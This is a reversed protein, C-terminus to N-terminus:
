AHQGAMSRPIVGTQFILLFGNKDTAASAVGVQRDHVLYYKLIVRNLETDLKVKGQHILVPDSQSARPLRRPLLTRDPSQGAPLVRNRISTLQYYCRSIHDTLCRGAPCRLNCPCMERMDFPRSCLVDTQTGHPQKPVIVRAHLAPQNLYIDRKSKLSLWVPHRYDM